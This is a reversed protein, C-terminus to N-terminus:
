LSISSPYPISLEIDSLTLLEDNEDFYLVQLKHSNLCCVIIYKDDIIYFDIPDKATHVMYLLSLKGNENNVRYMAISDHGRNSVFLHHGNSTLRIASACSFGKFHRPICHISQILSFHNNKYKYVFIRNTIECIVYAFRGDLSFIMHRPGSGPLINLNYSELNYLESNKYDYIYIKDSGLDVSYLYHNDPLFGVCHAHPGVQRKLLDPGHGEHHYSGIKNLIMHDKISYFATAGVNYNACFLYKEDEDVCLHSYSRGSSNYFSLENIKTDNIFYSGIGAGKNCSDNKFSVYYYHNMNVIYTPLGITNFFDKIVFKKNVFEILYLGREDINGMSSVFISNM